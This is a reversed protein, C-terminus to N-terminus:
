DTVPTVFFLESKGGKVLPKIAENFKRGHETAIHAQFAAEDYYTEDIHFVNPDDALRFVMFSVCGREARIEKALDSLLKAVEDAHGPLATIQAYLSKSTPVTTLQEERQAVPGAEAEVFLASTSTALFLASFAFRIIKKM